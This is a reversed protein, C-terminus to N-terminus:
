LLELFDKSITGIHHKRPDPLDLQNSYDGNLFEVLTESNLDKGINLVPRGVIAYDILKSPSHRKTGNDFNILFDMRSLEIILEDRPIYDLIELKEGLLTKYGLVMEMSNTYIFFKYPRDLGTLTDLLERPDRTGPLFGGSYAFVPYKNQSPSPTLDDFKFDFGQPIIKIKHHFRPYYAEIAGSIPITIYDAKKCFWKEIYSFYFLKRYTDVVDGMYPDGCDAIWKKAVPHNKTKSWAVGWHVPYPVAFSIMLDHNQQRNLIRKVKFFDEIAPYEFLLQLGRILIRSLVTFPKRKFRPVSPFRYKGWM